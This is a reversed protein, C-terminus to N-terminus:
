LVGLLEPNTRIMLIRYASIYDDMEKLSQFNSLEKIKQSIKSADVSKSFVQPPLSDWLSHSLAEELNNKPTFLVRRFEDESKINVNKLGSFNKFYEYGNSAIENQITIFESAVADKNPARTSVRLYSEFLGEYLRKSSIVYRKKSIGLLGKARNKRLETMLLEYSSGLRRGVITQYLPSLPPIRLKTTPGGLIMVYYPIERKRTPLATFINAITESNKELYKLFEDQNKIKSLSSIMEELSREERLYREVSPRRFESWWKSLFSVREDVQPGSNKLIKQYTEKAGQLRQGMFSELHSALSKANGGYEDYVSKAFAESLSKESLEGRKMLPTFYNAGKVNKISTIGLVSKAYSLETEHFIEKKFGRKSEKSTLKQYLKAQKLHYFKMGTQISRGTFGVMPIIFFAEVASNLKSRRIEDGSGMQTMGIDYFSDVREGRELADYYETLESKFAAMQTSVGLTALVAATIPLVGTATLAVAGVFLAASSLGFWLTKWDADNMSNIKDALLPPASIGLESEIEARDNMSIYFLDKLDKDNNLNVRCLTELDSMAKLSANQAASTILKSYLPQKLSSESEFFLEVLNEELLTKSKEPPTRTFLSRIPDLERLRNFLITKFDSPYERLSEEIAQDDSGLFTLRSIHDLDKYLARGSITQHTLLHGSEKDIESIAKTLLHEKESITLITEGHFPRLTYDLQLIKFLAVLPDKLQSYPEYNKSKLILHTLRLIAWPNHIELQNQFYNHETPLDLLKDRKLAHWYLAFLRWSKKLMELKSFSQASLEGNESFPNLVSLIKEKECLHPTEGLTCLSKYYSESYNAKERLSKELLSLAYLQHSLPAGTTPFNLNISRDNLTAVPLSKYLTTVSGMQKQTLIKQLFLNVGSEDFTLIEKVLSDAENAPFTGRKYRSLMVEIKPTMEQMVLSFDTLDDITDTTNFTGKEFLGLGLFKEHAKKAEIYRAFPLRGVFSLSNPDNLNPVDPLLYSEKFLDSGVVLGHSVIFINILESQTDKSVSPFLAETSVLYPSIEQCSNPLTFSSNRNSFSNYTYIRKLMGAISYKLVGKTYTKLTPISILSKAERILAYYPLPVLYNEGGESKISTFFSEQLLVKLDKSPEGLELTIEKAHDFIADPLPISIEAILRKQDYNKVEKLVELLDSFFLTINDLYLLHLSLSQFPSLSKSLMMVREKLSKARTLYQELNIEASTLPGRQKQEIEVLSYKIFPLLASEKIKKIREKNLKLLEDQFGVPKKGNPLLTPTPLPPEPPGAMENKLGLIDRTLEGFESQMETSSPKRWVEKERPFLILLVLFIALTYHVWKM